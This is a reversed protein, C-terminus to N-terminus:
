VKQLIRLLNIMENLIFGFTKFIKDSRDAEKMLRVEDKVISTGCPSRAVERIHHACRLKSPNAIATGEGLSRKGWLEM